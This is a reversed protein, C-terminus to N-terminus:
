VIYIPASSVAPIMDYVKHITLRGYFGNKLCSALGFSHVPCDEGSMECTEGM